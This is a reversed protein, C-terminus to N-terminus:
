RTARRLARVTSTLEDLRGRHEAVADADHRAEAGALATQIKRAREELQTALTRSAVRTPEVGVLVETALEFLLKALTLDDLEGVDADALLAQQVLRSAVRQLSGRVPGVCMAAHAGAILDATRRRRDVRLADAIEALRDASWEVRDFADDTPAAKSEASDM